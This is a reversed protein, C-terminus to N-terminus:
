IENKIDGWSSVVNNEELIKRYEKDLIVNYRYERAQPYPLWFYDDEHMRFFRKEDGTILNYETTKKTDIGMFVDGQKTPMKFKEGTTLIDNLLYKFFLKVILRSLMLGIKAYERKPEKQHQIDKKLWERETKFRRNRKFRDNDFDVLDSVGVTPIYFKGSKTKVLTKKGPFRIEEM